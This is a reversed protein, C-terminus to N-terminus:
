LFLNKCKFKKHFFSKGEYVGLFEMLILNPPTGEFWTEAVYRKKKVRWFIFYFIFSSFTLSKPDIALDYKSAKVLKKKKV